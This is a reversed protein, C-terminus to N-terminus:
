KRVEALADAKRCYSVINMLDKGAAEREFANMPSQTFLRKALRAMRELHREAIAYHKM